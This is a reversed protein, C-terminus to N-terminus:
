LIGKFAKPFSILYKTETKDTTFNIQESVETINRVRGDRLMIRINDERPRYVHNNIEKVRLLYGLLDNGIGYERKIANGILLVQERDLPRDSLKASFLHRNCAADALFSLIFDPHSMWQKFVCWMDSEDVAMYRRLFERGLGECGTKSLLLGRLPEHVPLPEGGALLEKARRVLGEVLADAALVTKHLYVQWYMMRRAIVFKEVSYLGKEEFVIDGDSVNMMAIIREHSVIGESAGTFFSDRNLYDLRDM